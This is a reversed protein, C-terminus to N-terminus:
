HGHNEIELDFKYFKMTKSVAGFYTFLNFFLVLLTMEPVHKCTSLLSGFKLM